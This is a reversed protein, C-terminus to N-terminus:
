IEETIFRVYGGSISDPAAFKLGSIKELGQDYLNHANSACTQSGMCFYRKGKPTYIAMHTFDDSSMLTLKIGSKIYKVSAYENNRKGTFVTEIELGGVEAYDSLNNEGSVELLSGTPIFDDTTQYAYDYPARIVTDREGDLKSFYPQLAIGFPVSQEEEDNEIEYDFRVGSKDLTYKINLQHKFPFAELLHYKKGFDLYACISISDDAKIIKIDNFPENYLLGNMTILRGNKIQPYEKGNYRFKGNHVRNPTPYLLPTGYFGARIEDPNFEIIRLDNVKYECLNMGHGPLIWIEKKENNGDDVYYLSIIDHGNREFQKYDFHMIAGRFKKFKYTILKM